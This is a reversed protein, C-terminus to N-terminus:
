PLAFAVYSGGTPSKPDRGGAAAIVVFQRGDVSYTAPTALGGFPLVTEWLLKGTEADFARFKRDYVTSGIFLVGGATVIPGGYNESGTVPIGQATLAPYEGLPIRWLYKGTNLDIANLTGWPPAIAPYGEPDLFKRYGTFRYPIKGGGGMTYNPKATLDLGLARLLANLEKGQIEAMPPMTGRGERIVTAVEAVTLRNGVGVLGPINPAQGERQMGHCAGCQEAYIRNGLEDGVASGLEQKDSGRAELVPAKLFRVLEATEGESLNPFGPMRGKGGRIAATIEADKLRGAVGELSPFAPPAGKLGAGHCVACQGQYADAGANGSAKNEELGGTWAMENENVYLVGKKPDIAPGGWEAGGDFGPFVVTQKGLSFPVFQGESRFGAFEKVAWAHAEPTRTTLDAETLRQRRGFPEPATPLMQKAATVEGPVTSGTYAREEMPFLAKGTVRDFLYVWGQKSTEAVADVRKGDRTVTVMAPPAPFDRDWIDHRVGQFHWIRKGTAADLALLCNAYLDDGVRDGGYFDFVASGTPVYVIGRRVDLTMGAWNNAAGAEEWADKPWTEYGVEGPHPITRFWWRLKGTRVDFARVDGPPAPHTEPNRGGVIVLDRYILGPTTLVVSQQEYEDGKPGVRLGKRLDIRGGEGFSAIPKGTEADLAYLYNMVGALIRGSKGDTWYSVGRNPQTGVIGADFKWKLKGTAADLAVVKQTPTVTYLVRGVVLPNAQLGGKEGTDFVWAQKLGAVNGRNIQTLESYHDGDRGGNYAPWDRDQAKTQAVGSGGAVLVLGLGAAVVRLKATFEGTRVGMERQGRM